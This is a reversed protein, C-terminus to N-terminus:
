LVKQGRILLSKMRRIEQIAFPFIPPAVLEVNKARMGLSELGEVMLLNQGMEKHLAESLINEFTSDKLILCTM